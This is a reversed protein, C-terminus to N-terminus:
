AFNHWSWFVASTVRRVQTTHFHFLMQLTAAALPVLPAAPLLTMAVEAVARPGALAALLVVEVALVVPVLVVEEELLGAQEPPVGSSAPLFVAPAEGLLGWELEVAPGALLALALVEELPPGEWATLCVVLLGAELELVPVLVVALPAAWATLCVVVLEVLPMAPVVLPMAPVVLPMAPVVLVALPVVLEELPVEPGEQAM